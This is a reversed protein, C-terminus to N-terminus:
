RRVAEIAKRCLKVGKLSRLRQMSKFSRSNLVMNLTGSVRDLEAQLDASRYMEAQCVAHKEYWTSFAQAAGKLAGRSPGKLKALELLETMFTASAQEWDPWTESTRLGETKLKLLLSPDEKLRNIGQIVEEEADRAIVLANVGDVIYEDHGSVDYVIATGGCHFMELPPAFMGEVYSLKVVVDCSRYIAPTETIPVCSFVRDVGPYSDCGVSSTLFWIEDAKTQRCLEITRETNKFFVNLPGEVLVRLRGPQRPSISPGSPTYLDKRIGNRALNVPLDFNTKLYQKIWSAETICPLGICYTSEVFSKAASDIDSYFRSEISQVFYVYSNARLKHLSFVTRWWTAVVVDFTVSDVQDFTKLSLENFAEPHWQLSERQTPTETVITVDHGARKLFLAHQFIVYTGGGVHTSWVLFAIKM